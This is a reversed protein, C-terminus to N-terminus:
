LAYETTKALARMADSMDSPWEPYKANLRWTLRLLTLLWVAIGMSRHLQLFANHSARSTALDIAFAATFVALMLAATLWHLARTGPDFVGRNSEGQVQM